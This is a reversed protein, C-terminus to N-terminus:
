SLRSHINQRGTKKAPVSCICSWLDGEAIWAAEAPKERVRNVSHGQGHILGRDNLVTEVKRKWHCLILRLM